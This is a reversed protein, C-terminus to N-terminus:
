ASRARSPALAFAFSEDSPSGSRSLRVSFVGNDAEYLGRVIFFRHARNAEAFAASAYMPVQESPIEYFEDTELRRLALAQAGESVIVSSERPTRSTLPPRGDKAPDGYWPDILGNAVSGSTALAIGVLALCASMRANLTSTMRIESDAGNAAYTM